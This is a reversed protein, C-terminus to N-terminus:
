REQIQLFVFVLVLPIESVYVLCDWAPEYLFEGTIPWYLLLGFNMSFSVLLLLM